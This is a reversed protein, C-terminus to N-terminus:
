QQTRTMDLIFNGYSNLQSVQSVQNTITNIGATASSLLTNVGWGGWGWGSTPTSTSTAALRDTIEKMDKDTSQHKQPQQFKTNNMKLGVEHITYLTM